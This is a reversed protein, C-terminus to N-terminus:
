QIAFIQVILFSKTDKYHELQNFLRLESEFYYLIAFIFLVTPQLYIM